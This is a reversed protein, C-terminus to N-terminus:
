EILILNSHLVFYTAIIAVLLYGISAIGALRKSV